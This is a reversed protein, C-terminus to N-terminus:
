GRSVAEGALEQWHLWRRVLLANVRTECYGVGEAATLPVKCKVTGDEFRVAERPGHKPCNLWFAEGKKWVAPGDPRAPAAGNFAPDDLVDGAEVVTLRPVVGERGDALADGGEAAPPAAELGADDDEAPAPQAARVAVGTARGQEEFVDGAEGSADFAEVAERMQAAREMSRRLGGNIEELSVVRDGPAATALESVTEDVLEADPTREVVGFTERRGGRERAVFFRCSGHRTRWAILQDAALNVLEARDAPFGNSEGEFSAEYEAGCACRERLRM